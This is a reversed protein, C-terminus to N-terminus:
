SLGFSTETAENVTESTDALGLRIEPWGAFYRTLKSVDKLSLKGDGNTDSVYGDIKM